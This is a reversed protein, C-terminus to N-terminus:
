CEYLLRLTQLEKGEIEICKSMPIRIAYSTWRDIPVDRILELSCIHFFYDYLDKNFSIGILVHIDNKYYVYRSNINNPM